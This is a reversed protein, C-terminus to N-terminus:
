QADPLRLRFLQRRTKSSMGRYAFAGMIILRLMRHMDVETRTYKGMGMGMGMGMGVIVVGSCMGRQGSALSCDVVSAYAM